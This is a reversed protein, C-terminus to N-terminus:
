RGAIGPPPAVPAGAAPTGSGPTRLPPQNPESQTRKPASADMPDFFRFHVVEVTAKRNLTKDLYSMQSPQEWMCDYRYGSVCFSLYERAKPDKEESQLRKLFPYLDSNPVTRFIKAMGETIPIDFCAEGPGAWDTFYIGAQVSPLCEAICLESRLIAQWAPAEESAARLFSVLIAFPITSALLPKM